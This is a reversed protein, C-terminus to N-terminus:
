IDINVFISINLYLHICNVSNIARNLLMWRWIIYHITYYLLFKNQFNHIYLQFIISSELAFQSWRNLSQFYIFMTKLIMFKFLIIWAIVSILTESQAGFDLTVGFYPVARIYFHIYRCFGHVLFFCDILNHHTRIVLTSSRFSPSM